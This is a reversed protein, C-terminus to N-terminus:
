IKQMEYNNESILGKLSERITSVARFLQKKVGGETINMCEAIEKITLQQYHKLVFVMRQQGSLKHLIQDIKERTEEKQRRKVPDSQDNEPSINELYDRGILSNKEKRKKNRRLYDLSCNISIRYLWPSFRSGDQTNFKPLSRFAKIFTEQLIDEADESNKTYQYAFAFIRQKNQDYLIRLAERDGERASQILAEEDMENRKYVLVCM